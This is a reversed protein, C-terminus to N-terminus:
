EDSLRADSRRAYPLRADPLRASLHERTDDLLGAPHQAAGVGAEHDARLPEIRVTRGRLTPTLDAFSAATATAM